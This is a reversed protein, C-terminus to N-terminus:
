HYLNASPLLAGDMNLILEQDGGGQFFDLEFSYVTAASLAKSASKTAAAHLGDNNVLQGGISLVSGDDSTLDFEHL